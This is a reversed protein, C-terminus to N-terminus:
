ISEIDSEYKEKMDHLERDKERLKAEIGKGRAEITTYDLFTLYKMCKTAYIERRDVEKKTYYPSKAHGLFWESYDQGVQDSIVTKVFRRLSHLTIKRRRGLGDEKRGDMGAIALLKEFEFVIKVYLHHPNPVGKVTYVSFILDDPKALKTWKNDKDRYKWSLWDKLYKTAEDSIYVDRSVRTKSFEKRVHIKTPSSSFDIDKLRIALSEIARFGGSALLLIYANLRRNNCLLLINRIDQVDLAEEDERYAKPMKVKRKFKSTVIDIDHYAFYSRVATMYLKITPISLKQSTLFSVFSDLLQYINIEESCLPLIISDVSYSKLRGDQLLFNQFCVLGNLYARGSSISNRGMSHLFSSVKPFSEVETRMSVTSNVILKM